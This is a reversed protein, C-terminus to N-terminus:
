VVLAGRLGRVSGSIGHRGSLHVTCMGTLIYVTHNIIPFGNADFYDGRQTKESKLEVSHDKM